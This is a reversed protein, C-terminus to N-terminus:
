VGAFVAEPEGGAALDRWSATRGRCIHNLTEYRRAGVQVGWTVFQLADSQEHFRHLWDAGVGCEGDTVMVIDAEVRGTAEHEETLRAVAADLPYEFNTGGYWSETVVDMIREPTYDDPSVFDVCRLEGHSGFLMHHYRRGEEKAIHLMVLAFASAQLDREGRMSGSADRLVIVAGKAVRETGEMRYNPLQEEAYRRLFDLRRAPHHLAALDTPPTRLLDRGVTVSVVEDPVWDVKRQRCTWALARMPGFRRMIERMRPDNLRRALEFRKDAPMRQLSGREFGWGRMQRDFDDAHGAARRLAASLVARMYAADATLGSTLEAAADGAEAEIAAIQQELTELHARAADVAEALGDQDDPDRSLLEDLDVQAEAQEAELRHMEALREMLREAEQQRLQERDALRELDPEIDVTADAANLQNGVTFRRLDRWAPLRIMEGAVTHNLLHDPRVEAVDVVEPVAKVLSYFADAMMAKATTPVIAELDGTASPLAAIERWVYSWDEQDWRDARVANTPLKAPDGNWPLRRPPPVPETDTM